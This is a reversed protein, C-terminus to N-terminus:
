EADGWRYLNDITDEHEKLPMTFERAVYSMAFNLLYIGWDTGEIAEGAVFKQGIMAVIVLIAVNQIPNRKVSKIIPKM